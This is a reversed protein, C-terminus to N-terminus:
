VRVKSVDTYAVNLRSADPCLLEDSFLLFYGTRYLYDEAQLSFWTKEALKKHKVNEYVLQDTELFLFFAGVYRARNALYIAIKKMEPHAAALLVQESM